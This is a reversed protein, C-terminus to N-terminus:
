NFLGKLKDIGEKAKEGVSDKLENLKESSLDKIGSQVTESISGNLVELVQALADSITAGGNKGIDHLEVMPLDLTIPKGTLLGLDAHVKGGSVKVHDIQISKTSEAGSTEPSEEKKGSGKLMEKINAQLQSINNKKGITGEYMIEPSDIILSRIHIKDSTVSKINIDLATEGLKFAYDSKFGQPNGITLGSLKGKGSFLSIDVDDLTVPAKLVKPGATEVGKKIISDLNLTLFVVGGILLLVIVFFIIIINKM